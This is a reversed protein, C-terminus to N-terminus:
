CTSYSSESSKRRIALALPWCFLGSSLWAACQSRTRVARAQAASAKRKAARLLTVVRESLAHIGGSVDCVFGNVFFGAVARLHSRLAGEMNERVRQRYIEDDLAVQFQAPNLALEEAYSILSSVDLRVGDRMLYDHM